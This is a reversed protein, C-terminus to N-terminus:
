NKNTECADKKYQGAYVCIGTDIQSRPRVINWWLLYVNKTDRYKKVICIFNSSTNPKACWEQIEVNCFLFFVWSGVFISLTIQRTGILFTKKKILKIYLSPKPQQFLSRHSSVVRFGTLVVENYVVQKIRTLNSLFTVILAFSILLKSYNFPQYWCLM